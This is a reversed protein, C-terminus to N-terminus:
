YYSRVIARRRPARQVVPGFRKLLGYGLASLADENRKIPRGPMSSLENREAWRHSKLEGIVGNARGDPDVRDVLTSAFYILPGGGTEDLGDPPHGQGSWLRLHIADYWEKAHRVPVSEFSIPHEGLRKLESNWVEVQPINGFQRYTGAIDIVGRTCSHKWLPNTVVQPIVQQGIQNKAYLEDLVHVTKGDKAVQVFLIAYTHTAPDCWLEVERDDDFLETFPKVHFKPSFEKFVLGVPPCPVGGYREQFLDTPMVGEIAKIKPDNRGGPYVALNSWTPISFSVGEEPNAGQWRQWQEAYWGYSGEFTGSFIVPANKETARELAKFYMEHPHQAAETIALATPRKGAIGVPDTASKTQCEAGGYEPTLRFRCPGRTPTSISNGDVVGLEQFVALLYDFEPKALDYNPGIIWILAGPIAFYPVIEMATLVSKGAGVGGAALKLRAPHTHFAQQEVSPRYKAQLWVIKKFNEQATSLQL